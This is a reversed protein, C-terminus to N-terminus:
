HDSNSLSMISYLDPYIYSVILTPYAIIMHHTSIV